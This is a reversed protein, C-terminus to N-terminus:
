DEYLANYGNYLKFAKEKDVVEAGGDHVWVTYEFMELIREITTECFPAICGDHHKWVDWDVEDIESYIIVYELYPYRAAYEINDCLLKVSM